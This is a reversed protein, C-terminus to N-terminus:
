DQPPQGPGAIEIVTRLSTIGNAAVGFLEAAGGSLPKRAQELSIRASYQYHAGSPSSIMVELLFRQGVLARAQGLDFTDPVSDTNTGKGVDVYRAEALDWNRVEYTAFLGYGVDISLSLQGPEDLIHVKM